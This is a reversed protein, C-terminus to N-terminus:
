SQSFENRAGGADTYSGLVIVQPEADGFRRLVRTIFLGTGSAGIRGLDIPIPLPEGGVHQTLLEWGESFTLMEITVRRADANGRNALRVEVEAFNRSGLDRVRTEIEIRPRGDASPSAAPDLAATVWDAGIASIAFAEAVV